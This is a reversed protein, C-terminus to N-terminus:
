SGYGKMANIRKEMEQTVRLERVLAIFKPIAVAWGIFYALIFKIVFYILWGVLPLFLFLNSTLRNLASWGFPIGAGFVISLVLMLINEMVNSKSSYIIEIIIVTFFLIAFIASLGFTTIAKKKTEKCAIKACHICYGGFENACDGCIPNGCKSCFRAAERGQHTICNM